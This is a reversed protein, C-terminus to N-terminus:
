IFVVNYKTSIRPLTRFLFRQLTLVYITVIGLIKLGGIENTVIVLAHPKDIPRYLKSLRDYVCCHVVPSNLNPILHNM